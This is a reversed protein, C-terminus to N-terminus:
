PKGLLYQAAKANGEEIAGNAAEEMAQCDRGRVAVCQGTDSLAAPNGPEMAAMKGCLRTAKATEM